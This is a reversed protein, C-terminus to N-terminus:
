KFPMLCELVCDFSWMPIRYLPDAAASVIIVLAGRNPCYFFPPYCQLRVPAKNMTKM